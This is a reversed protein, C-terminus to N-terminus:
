HEPEALSELKWVANSNVAVTLDVRAIEPKDSLCITTIPNM